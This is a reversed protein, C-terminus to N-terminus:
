SKAPGSEEALALAARAMLDRKLQSPLALFIERSSEPNLTLRSPLAGFFKERTELARTRQGVTLWSESKLFADTQALVAVPTTPKRDRVEEIWIDPDWGHRDISHGSPTTYHGITIKAILPAQHGFGLLHAATLLSPYEVVEQVSAKGYTRSSGLLIGHGYDRLAGAVIEASSATGENVLCFVPGRFLPSHSGQLFSISKPMDVRAIPRQGLFYSAIASAEQTYGGPNSRLDLVVAHLKETRALAKQLAHLVQVSSSAHQNSETMFVPIRMWLVPGQTTMMLSSFFHPQRTVLELELEHWDSDFLLTSYPDMTELMARVIQSGTTWRTARAQKPQPTFHSRSEVLKERVSHLAVCTSRALLREASGHGYRDQIKRRLGDVELGEQHWWDLIHELVTHARQQAGTFGEKQIWAWLRETNCPDLNPDSAFSAVILLFACLMGLLGLRLLIRLCWRTMRM